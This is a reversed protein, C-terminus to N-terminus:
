LEEDTFKAMIAEATVQDSDQTTAWGNEIAEIVEEESKGQRKLERARRSFLRVLGPDITEDPRRSQDRIAQTLDSKKPRDPAKTAEALQSELDKIREQQSLISRSDSEFAVKMGAVSGELREIIEDRKTVYGRLTAITADADAIRSDAVALREQLKGIHAKRVTAIEREEALENYSDEARREMEKRFAVAREFRDDLADLTSRLVFPFRM